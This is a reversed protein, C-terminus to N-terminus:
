RQPAQGIAARVGDLIVEADPGAIYSGHDGHLTFKQLELTDADISM